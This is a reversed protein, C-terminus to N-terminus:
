THKWANLKLIPFDSSNCTAQHTNAWQILGGLRSQITCYHSDAIAINNHSHGPKYFIQWHLILVM